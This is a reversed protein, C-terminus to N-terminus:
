FIDSKVNLRRFKNKKISYFAYNQIIFEAISIILFIFIFFKPKKILLLLDRNNFNNIKLNMTECGCNFDIIKEMKLSFFTISNIVILFLIFLNSSISLIFNSKRNKLAFFFLVLHVLILPLNIYELINTKIARDNNAKEIINYEHIFNNACEENIYYYNRAYLNVKEDSYDNFIQIKNDYYLSKMPINNGVEFYNLDYLKDNIYTKCINSKEKENPNASIWNYEGIAICPVDSSLEFNTIINHDVKNNSFYIYRKVGTISDVVQIQNYEPILDSQEIESIKFDNLPCEEGKPMCLVNGNSDLIGCKKYDYECNESEKVSTKLFDFYTMNAKEYFFNSQFIKNIKVPNIDQKSGKITGQWTYFSDYVLHDSSPSNMGVFFHFLPFSENQFIENKLEELNNRKIKSINIASLIILLIFITDLIVFTLIYSFNKKSLILEFYKCM